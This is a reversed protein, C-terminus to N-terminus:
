YMFRDGRPVMAILLLLLQSSMDNGKKFLITILLLLPDSKTAQPADVTTPDPFLKFSMSSQRLKM